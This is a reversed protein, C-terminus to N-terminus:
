EWKQESSFRLSMLLFINEVTTVWGNECATEFFREVIASQGKTAAPSACSRERDELEARQQESLDTLPPSTINQFMFKYAEPATHLHKQTCLIFPLLSREELYAAIVAVNHEWHSNPQVPLPVNDSPRNPLAAAIYRRSKVGVMLQAEYRPIHLPGATGEDELFDKVTQHLLQAEDDKRVDGRSLDGHPSDAPRIVEIFPGCLRQLQRRFSSWSHVKLCDKMALADLLEQLQFPRAATAVSVWVLARRSIVMSNEGVTDRLGKLIQRYLADLDVPLRYLEEEIQKLDCLPERAHAEVAKLITTVWLIVGRAHIILYKRIKELRDVEEEKVKRFYGVSGGYSNGGKQPKHRPVLRTFSRTGTSPHNYEDEVLGCEAGSDEGESSDDDAM